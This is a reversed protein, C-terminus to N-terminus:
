PDPWDSPSAATPWGTCTILVTMALLDEVADRGGVARTSIVVAAALSLDGAQSPRLSRSLHVREFEGGGEGEVVSSAPQEVM